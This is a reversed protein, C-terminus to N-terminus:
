LNTAPTLGLSGLRDRLSHQMEPDTTLSEDGMAPLLEEWVVNLVEQMDKVGGTTALVADQDPMVICFQGFAGDGRYCNHRCRWFQFGYGQSWDIKQPDNNAVQCATAQAVWEAPLVKCGQWVGKQLYMQGFCAIDETRITLGWGGVIIGRPCTEWTLNEIGLPEFLRPTLYELLNMGTLKQVIASLMYSAASNYVFHTGPRYRVPLGLFGKVWNGDNEAMMRQSADKAHGTTMTLLDRVRMAALNKSVKAPVEEPFISLVPEDIDLHGEAVALGVASSTFSKSLSFLMHPKQATHPAWWGEAVVQGHRVLMFSHLDRIEKEVREVFKLIAASTIGQEEPTSRRFRSRAL